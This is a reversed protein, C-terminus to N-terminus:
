GKEMTSEVRGLTSNMGKTMAKPHFVIRDYVFGM